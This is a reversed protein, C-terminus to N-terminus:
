EQIGQDMQIIIVDFSYVFHNREATILGPRCHSGCSEFVPLNDSFLQDMEDEMSVSSVKWNELYPKIQNM